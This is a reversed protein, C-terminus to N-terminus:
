IEKEVIELMVLTANIEKKLIGNLIIKALDETQYIAIKNLYRSWKNTNKGCYYLNTIKNKIAYYQM